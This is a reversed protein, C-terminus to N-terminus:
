WDALQDPRAHWLGPLAAPLAQPLHLVLGAVAETLPESRLYMGALATVLGLGLLLLSLPQVMEVVPLCALVLVALPAKWRRTPRLMLAAGFLALAFVALFTMAGATFSTLWATPGSPPVVSDSPEPRLFPSLARKM